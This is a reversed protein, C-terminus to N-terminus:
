AGSPNILGRLTLRMAPLPTGPAGAETVSKPGLLYVSASAPHRRRAADSDLPIALPRSRGSADFAVALAM